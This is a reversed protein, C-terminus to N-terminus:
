YPFNLYMLVKCIYCIGWRRATWTCNFTTNLFVGFEYPEVRWHRQIKLIGVVVWPPLTKFKYYEETSGRGYQASLGSSHSANLTRVTCRAQFKLAWCSLFQSTSTQRGTKYEAFDSKMIQTGVNASPKEALFINVYILGKFVFRIQKIHPSLAYRATFV